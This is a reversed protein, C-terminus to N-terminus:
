VIPTNQPSPTCQLTWSPYETSYPNSQQNPTSQLIRQIIPRVIYLDFTALLFFDWKRPSGRTKNGLGPVWLVRRCDGCPGTGSSQRARGYGVAAPPPDSIRKAVYRDRRRTGWTERYFSNKGFVSGAPGSVM